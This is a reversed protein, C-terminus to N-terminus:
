SSRFTARFQAPTMGTSHKFTKSFHSQDSFGNTVAVDALPRDTTTLLRSASEVRLRRVYEGMTCGYFKRFVRAFHVPHVGFFEAIDTFVLNETFQAHLLEKAQELWRPPKREANSASYRSASAVIELALGEIVLSSVKDTHCFERYLRTTLWTLLGGSCDLPEALRVSCENFRNLWQHKIELRFLRGGQNLFHNAHVEDSPHFIVTSPKCERFKSSYRETYTGRLLICFYAHEHSHRAIKTDPSYTSESLIFGAIEYRKLSVGFFCGSPLKRNM